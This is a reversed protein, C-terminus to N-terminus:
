EREVGYKYIVRYLKYEASTGNLFQESVRWYTQRSGAYHMCRVVNFKTSRM